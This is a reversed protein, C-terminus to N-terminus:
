LSVLSWQSRVLTQGLDPPPHRGSGFFDSPLVEISVVNEIQDLLPQQLNGVSLSLTYTGSVLPLEPIRCRVRCSGVLSPLPTASLYTTVSTIRQGWVNDFGIGIQPAEVLAPLMLDFEVFIEDGCYFTSTLNDERDRLRVRQMIPLCGRRRSPCLALHHEAYHEVQRNRFYKDAVEPASGDHQIEGNNLLIARTCLHLVAPMNHSVFLVTRGGKSVEGMKGLCKKQFESDGVALVEDVILIEPELHAAVAFALRVYMGSSYHKIPTDIFREVGSFDVIEDFKGDLEANKMGLIAGNLYINERGTLERDFGTGVELLSGVRGHLEAYGSTPETIRSLIKLLTSKGAGNRGIIGLVEGQKVEFSVDKLAWVTDTGSKLHGNGRVLNGLSYALQERLTDHRVRAAGIRYQKSLKDVRISLHSM